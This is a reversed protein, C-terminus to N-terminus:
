QNTQGYAQMWLHTKLSSKFISLSTILRISAPLKNWLRPACVAFSRDGYSKLRSPPIQLLNHGQSRLSRPPSYPHLLDSLYPPALGNLSKFTLMIIKHEIRFQVPLWHLEQLLPHVHEHRGARKIIRAACNQVRQLQDMQHKPIGYLLSNCYDLQSM